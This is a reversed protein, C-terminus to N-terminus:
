CLEEGKLSQDWREYLEDIEQALTEKQKMHENLSHSDNYITPDYIALEIKELEGELQHIERELASPDEAKTGKPRSSRKKKQRKPKKIETTTALFERYNGEVYRHGDERIELIHTCLKNLFFRDHSVLIITGEYQLLSEELTEKSPLDLHNTPEDLLLLNNDRLMLKLLSLRAREGGSLVKVKKFVDDGQFLFLALLNRITPIDLSPFSDNIEETLDAEDSLEELNQNYYSFNVGSGYKIRGEDPLLHDALIQLLTSKGVGNPGIIGLVQQRYVKFSLESFLRKDGLSKQLDIVQLVDDGSRRHIGFNLRISHDLWLPKVPMEMRELKKERDRARKAFIENRHSREKFVRLKEEEAERRASALEFEKYLLEYRIRKEELYKSYNGSYWQGLGQELEFIKEVTNDLFERDHTTIICAGPYNSIFSELWTIAGIDLHNTPEDLLLLDVEKVLTKALEVRTREGGSLVSLPKQQEDDSFGLGKLIGRIYSETAYGNEDHFREQLRALEYLLEESEPNQELAHSTEHIKEELRLIDSFSELCYSYVSQHSLDKETMQKLYGITKGRAYFVQGEDASLEGTIIKLLTSKGEGNRGILGIKEKDKIEFNVDVLVDELLFSKKIHNTQLLMSETEDKM